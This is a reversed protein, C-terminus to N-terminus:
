LLFIAWTLGRNVKGGGFVDGAMSGTWVDGHMSSCKKEGFGRDFKDRKCCPFGQKFCMEKGLDSVKESEAEREEERETM